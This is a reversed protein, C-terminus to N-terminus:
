PHADYVNGDAAGATNPFGQRELGSHWFPAAFGGHSAREVGDRQAQEDGDALLAVDRARRRAFRDHRRRDALADGRELLRHARCQDHAAPAADHGRSGALRQQPARVFQEAAHFTHVRFQALKRGTRVAAHAHHRAQRHQGLLQGVVDGREQRAVLRHPDAQVFEHARLDHAAHALAGGVDAHQPVGGVQATHARQRIPGVM